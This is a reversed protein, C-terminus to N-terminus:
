KGKSADEYRGEVGKLWPESVSEFGEAGMTALIEKGRPDESLGAFAREVKKLLEESSKSGEEKGGPFAVLLAPPYYESEWVKELSKARYLEALTLYERGTLFVARYKKKDCLDRLARAAQLTPKADWAAPNAKGALVLRQLLEPEHLPGGAVPQGKLDAALDKVEGARAVLVFSDRPKAQLLPKLGLERRHKLYFGLSVVGFIPRVGAGGPQEGKAAALGPAMENHYEGALGSLGTKEELHKALRKVFGEADRTSGPYGPQVIVMRSEAGHLGSLWFGVALLVISGPLLRTSKMAAAM